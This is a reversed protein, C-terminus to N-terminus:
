FTHKFKICNMTTHHVEISYSYHVSEVVMQQVVCIM